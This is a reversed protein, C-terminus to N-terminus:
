YLDGTSNNRAIAMLVSLGTSLAPLDRPGGGAVTSIVSQARATVPGLGIASLLAVLVLLSAMSPGLRPFRMSPALLSRRTSPSLRSYWRFADSAPYRSPHRADRPSAGEVGPSRRNPRTRRGSGSSAVPIREGRREVGTTVMPSRRVARPNTLVAHAPNTGRRVRGVAVGM